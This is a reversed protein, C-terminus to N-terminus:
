VNVAAVQSYHYSSAVKSTSTTTAVVSSVSSVATIAAVTASCTAVPTGCTSLLMFLLGM